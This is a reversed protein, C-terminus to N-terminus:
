HFFGWEIDGSLVLKMTQEGHHSPLNPVDRLM